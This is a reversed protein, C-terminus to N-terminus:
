SWSIPVGLVYKQYLTFDECSTWGDLPNAYIFHRTGDPKTFWYDPAQDLPLPTVPWGLLCLDQIDSGFVTNRGVAYTATVVLIYDAIRENATPYTSPGIYYVDLVGVGPAIWRPKCSFMGTVDVPVSKLNEALFQKDKIPNDKDKEIPQCTLTAPAVPVGNYSVLIKFQSMLDVALTTGTKYAAYDTALWMVGTSRVQDDQAITVVTLTPAAYIYTPLQQGFVPVFTACTIAILLAAIVPLYRKNM